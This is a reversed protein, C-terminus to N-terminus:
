VAMSVGDCVCVCVGHLRCAALFSFIISYCAPALRGCQGVGRRAAQRGTPRDTQRDWGGGQGQGTGTQSLVCCV